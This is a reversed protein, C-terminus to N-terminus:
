DWEYLDDPRQGEGFRVQLAERRQACSGDEYLRALVLSSHRLVSHRLRLM